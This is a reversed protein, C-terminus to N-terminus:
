SASVAARRRAPPPLRLPGRGLPGAATVKRGRAARRGRARRRLRRLVLRSPARRQPGRRPLRPLGSARRRAPQILEIQPRARSASRSTSGEAEVPAGRLTFGPRARREEDRPVPRRGKGGLRRDGAELDPGRLRAPRASRHVSRGMRALRERAARRRPRGSDDGSVGPRARRPREAHERCTAEGAERVAGARGRRRGGPARPRGRTRRGRAAGTGPRPAARRRRRRSAVPAGRDDDGTVVALRELEGGVHAGPERRPRDAEVRAAADGVLRVERRRRVEDAQADGREVRQEVGGPSSGGTITTEATASDSFTGSGSSRGCAKVSRM